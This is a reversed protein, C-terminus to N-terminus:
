RFGANRRAAEQVRGRREMEEIQKEWPECKEVCDRAGCTPGGCNFCWGRKRGSGPEIRWHAQCHVCQLTEGEDETGAPGTAIFYGSPKRVSHQM